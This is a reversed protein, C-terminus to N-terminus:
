VNSSDPTNRHLKGTMRLGDRMNMSMLILNVAGALLEIGQVSYFKTDFLGVSAWQNLFIACPLLILLSNAAIFPMRKQKGDILRSKGYRACAFGTGGTIAIVPILIFLGPTVILSKVTSISKESGFLEVLITATFFSAICFLAVIAAVLHIKSKM